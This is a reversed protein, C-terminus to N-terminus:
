NMDPSYWAYKAGTWLILGAKGGLAANIADGKIPPLKQKDKSERLSKMSQTSMNGDTGNKLLFTQRADGSRWGQPGVGHIIALLADGKEARVPMPKTSPPLSVGARPLFVKKPDELIWNALENNVEPLKGEAPRVIVALDEAGDGNFDGVVFGTKSDTGAAVKQFVRTVAEGVETLTPAPLPSPATKLAIPETTTSLVPPSPSATSVATSNSGAPSETKASNNEAPHSSCAALSVTGVLMLRLILSSTRMHRM